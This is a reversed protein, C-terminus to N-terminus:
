LLVQQHLRLLTIPITAFHYKSSICIIWHFLEIGLQEEFNKHVKIKNKLHAVQNQFEFWIHFSNLKLFNHYFHLQTEKLTYVNLCNGSSYDELSSSRYLLKSCCFHLSQLCMHIHKRRERWHQMTDTKSVMIVSKQQTHVQEHSGSQLKRTVKFAMFSSLFSFHNQYHKNMDRSASGFHHVWLSSGFISHHTALCPTRLM